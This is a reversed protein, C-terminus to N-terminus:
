KPTVLRITPRKTHREFASALTRLEALVPLLLVVIAPPAVEAYARVGSILDEFRELVRRRLQQKRVEQIEGASM